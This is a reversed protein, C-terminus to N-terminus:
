NNCNDIYYLNMNYIEYDKLDNYSYSKYTLGDEAVYAIIVSTGINQLIMYLNNQYIIVDGPKSSELITPLVYDKYENINTIKNNVNAANLAWNM